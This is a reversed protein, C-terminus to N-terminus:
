HEMFSTLLRFERFPRKGHRGCLNYKLALDPSMIYSMMRRTADDVSAGGIEGVMIVVGSMFESDSLKENMTQVDDVTTLPFVAGRPPEILASAERQKLLTNLMKGHVKQTEKVEEILTILKIFMAEGVSRATNSCSSAQHSPTASPSRLTATANYDNSPNSTSRPYAHLSTVRVAPKYPKLNSSFDLPPSPPLEDDCCTDSDEEKDRRHFITTQKFILHLRQEHLSADLMKMHTQMELHVCLAHGGHSM